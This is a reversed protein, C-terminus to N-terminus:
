ATAEQLVLANKPPMEQYLSEVLDARNKLVLAQNISGKDTLERAELSPPADLIVAREIRTSSGPNLV